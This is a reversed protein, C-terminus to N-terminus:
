SDIYDIYDIYDVQLACTDVVMSVCLNQYKKVLLECINGIILRLSAIRAFQGQTSLCKYLTLNWYIITGVPGPDVELNKILFRLSALVICGSGM